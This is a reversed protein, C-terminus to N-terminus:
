IGDLCSRCLRPPRRIKPQLPQRRFTTLDRWSSSSHNAVKVKSEDGDADPGGLADAVTLIEGAPLSTNIVEVDDHMAEIDKWVKEEASSAKAHAAVALKWLLQKAKRLQKKEQDKKAKAAAKEQKEREIRDVPLAFTRFM